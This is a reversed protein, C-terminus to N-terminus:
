RSKHSVHVGHHLGSILNAQSTPSIRRVVAWILGNVEKSTSPLAIGDDSTKLKGCAKNDYERKGKACYNNWAKTDKTEGGDNLVGRGRWYSIHLACGLFGHVLALPNLWLRADGKNRRVICLGGIDDVRAILHTCIIHWYGSM